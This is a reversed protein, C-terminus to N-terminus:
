YKKAFNVMIALVINIVKTNACALAIVSTGMTIPLYILAYINRQYGLKIGTLLQFHASDHFTGLWYGFLVYNLTNIIVQLVVCIVFM